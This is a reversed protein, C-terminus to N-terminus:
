INLNIYLHISKHFLNYSIFRLDYDNMKKRFLNKGVVSM